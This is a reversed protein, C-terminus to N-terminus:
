VERVAAGMKYQSGPCVYTQVCISQLHPSHFRVLVPTKLKSPDKLFFTKLLFLFSALSDM